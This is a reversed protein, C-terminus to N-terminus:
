IVIHKLFLKFDSINEQLFKYVLEENLGPYNHIAINRFNVVGKMKDHISKSIIKNQYLEPIIKGYSDVKQGMSSLIHQGIDFVSEIAVVLGYSVAWLNGKNNRLDDLSLKQLAKLSEYTELLKAKKEELNNKAIKTM